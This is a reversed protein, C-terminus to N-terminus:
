LAMSLSWCVSFSFCWSLSLSMLELISSRSNLLVSINSLFDFFFFPQSAMCKVCKVRVWIFLFEKHSRTQWIHHTNESKVTYAIFLFLFYLWKHTWKQLSTWNIHWYVLHLSIINSAMMCSLHPSAVDHKQPPILCFRCKTSPNEWCDWKQQQNKNRGINYDLYMNLM